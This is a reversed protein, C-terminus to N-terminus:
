NAWKSGFPAGEQMEKLASLVENEFIIPAGPSDVRRIMVYLVDAFPQVLLSELVERADDTHGNKIQASWDRLMSKCRVYAKARGRELTPRWLGFVRITEGGKPTLGTYEGTPLTLSIHDYPDEKTPNVLLCSGDTGCPYQDRKENSNCHSCALLHNEWLFASLPDKAIPKFHDIDTGQNEGCYMCREYGAAMSSLQGKLDRRITKATKWAKRTITSDAASNSLLTSKADLRKKLSASIEPRELPIM